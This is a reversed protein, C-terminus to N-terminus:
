VLRDGDGVAGDPDGGAVVDRRRRLDFPAADVAPEVRVGVPRPLARPEAMSIEAAPRARMPGREDRGAEREDAGPEVRAARSAWPLKSSQAATRPPMRETAPM